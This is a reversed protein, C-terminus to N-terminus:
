RCDPQFIGTGENADGRVGKDELDRFYALSSFRFRGELFAEGWRRDAYYRFVSHRRAM